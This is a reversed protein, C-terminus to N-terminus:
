KYKYWVVNVFYKISLCLSKFVGIGEENRYINWFFSVLKSKNSSVSGDLRRYSCLKEDLAYIYQCKKILKLWLAFDEHGCIPFKQQGLLEKTVMATLCGVSNNTLLQSYNVIAPPSYSSVIVGDDNIINYATCSFMIDNDSMFKVQKSLKDKEWLDDADLFAIYEGNALSLAVNRPLAPSGSNTDLTICSIRPDNFTQITEVTNDTSHDDVIILEWSPYSQILVSRISDSISLSANYSPMIISILKM